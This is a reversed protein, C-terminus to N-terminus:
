HLKSISLSFLVCYKSLFKSNPIWFFDLLPLLPLLRYSSFGNVAYYVEDTIEMQIDKFDDEDLDGDALKRAYNQADFRKRYHCFFFQIFNINWKGIIFCRLIFLVFTSFVQILLKFKFKCKCKCQYLHTFNLM